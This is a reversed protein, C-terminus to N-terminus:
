AEIRQPGRRVSFFRGVALETSDTIETTTRNTLRVLCKQWRVLLCRAYGGRVTSAYTYWNGALWGRLDFVTAHGGGERCGDLDPDREHDANQTEFKAGM